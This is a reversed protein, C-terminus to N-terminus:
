DYSKAAPSPSTVNEYYLTGFIKPHARNLEGMQKDWWDKGFKTIQEDRTGGVSNPLSMIRIEELKDWLGNWKTCHEEELKPCTQKYSSSYPYRGLCIKQAKTITDYYRSWWDEQNISAEVKGPASDEARKLSKKPAAPGELSYLKLFRDYPCQTKFPYRQLPFQRYEIIGDALRVGTIEVYHDTLNYVHYNAGTNPKRVWVQGVSPDAAEEAARKPPKQWIQDVLQVNTGTVNKNKGHGTPVVQAKKSSSSSSTATVKPM